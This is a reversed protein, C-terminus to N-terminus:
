VRDLVTRLAADFAALTESGTATEADGSDGHGSLDVAAAPRLPGDRGYQHVWVRHTAGSRHVYLASPGDVGPRVHRYATERGDHVVQQM